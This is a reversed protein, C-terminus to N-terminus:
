PKDKIGGSNQVNNTFSNDCSSSIGSNSGATECEANQANNTPISISSTTSGGLALVGGSNAVNNNVTGNCSNTEPSATGATDCTQTQTSTTPISISQAAAPQTMSAAITGTAVLIAAIAAVSLLAKNSTTRNTM